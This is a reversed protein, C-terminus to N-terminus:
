VSFFKSMTISYALMMYAHSFRKFAEYLHGHKPFKEYRGKMNLFDSVDKYEISPGTPSTPGFFFYNLWDILNLDGIQAKEKERETM